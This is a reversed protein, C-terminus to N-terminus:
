ESLEGPGETQEVLRSLVVVGLLLMLVISAIVLLTM